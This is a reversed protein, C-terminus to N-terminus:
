CGSSYGHSGNEPDGWKNEDAKGADQRGPGFGAQSASELLSPLALRYRGRLGLPLAGDGSLQCRGSGPRRRRRRQFETGAAVTEIAVLASAFKIGTKGQREPQGTLPASCLGHGTGLALGQGTAQGGQAESQRLGHALGPPPPLRGAVVHFEGDGAHSRRLAQTVVHGAAELSAVQRPGIEVLGLPRMRQGPRLAGFGLHGLRLSAVAELAQGALRRRGLRWLGLRFRGSHLIRGMRRQAIPLPSSFQGPSLEFQGARLRTGVRFQGNRCAAIPRSIALREVAGPRQRQAQGEPAPCAMVRADGRGIGFGDFRFDAPFALPLANFASGGGEAQLHCCGAQLQCSGLLPCM